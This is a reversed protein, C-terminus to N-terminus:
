LIFTYVCMNIYIYMSLSCSQLLEDTQHFMLCTSSWLIIFHIISFCLADTCSFLIVISQLSNFLLPSPYYPFHLYYLPNNFCSRYTHIRFCSGRSVDIYVKLFHSLYSPLAPGIQPHSCHLM